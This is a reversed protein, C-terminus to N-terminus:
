SKCQPFATIRLKASAYPILTISEEPGESETPSAPLPDAAGDVARWDNLKHAKVKLKVPAHSRAFPVAGVEGQTVSISESPKALDVDLAYNWVTEPFVQWDATM